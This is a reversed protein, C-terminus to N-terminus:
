TDLSIVIGGAPATPNVNLSVALTTAKAAVGDGAATIDLTAGGSTTSITIDNTSVTKVFYLTGETIGTPLSSGLAPYFAIRDGVSVGSLGPITIVDAATATFPGLNATGIPGKFLVEGTGSSARGISWHTITESGATAILTSQANINTITIPESSAITWEATSRAIAKRAYGTYACENTTQSGGVGVDGTHFALYLSGAAASGVLGTADGINAWTVNHFIFKSLNIKATTGLM